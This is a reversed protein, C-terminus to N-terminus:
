NDKAPHSLFYKEDETKFNGYLVSASSDRVRFWSGANLEFEYIISNQILRGEIVCPLVDFM